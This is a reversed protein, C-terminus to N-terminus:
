KIYYGSVKWPGNDKPGVTVTEVATKKNMFSTDFQMVVYQGDPAGPLQAMTKASKLKRSILNGLPKRFANMSHEWSPEAVAKQFFPAAQKWSQAYDGKDNLALWAQASSVAPDQETASQAMALQQAFGFVGTLLVIISISAIILPRKM